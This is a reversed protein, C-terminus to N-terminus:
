FQLMNEVLLFRSLLLISNARYNKQMDTHPFFNLDRFLSLNAVMDMQSCWHVTKQDRALGIPFKVSFVFCDAILNSAIMCRLAVCACVYVSKCVM